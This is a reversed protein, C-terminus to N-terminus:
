SKKLTRKVFELIAAFTEASEWLAYLDSKQLHKRLEIAERVPRRAQQKSYAYVEPRIAALSEAVALAEELLHDSEAVADILGRQRADQGVFTAGGLTVEEYFVPSTRARMIEMAVTPFPVGVRLEPVGIGAKGDVMLRRDACCALLCGGAIAHGNVAAVLPKDCFFLTELLDDLAPLLKRVYDVGGALLQPLDVGASFIQGQGTLVIARSSSKGLQRFIRTLEICFDLDLANAPGHEMRLVAIAGQQEVTFMPKEKKM